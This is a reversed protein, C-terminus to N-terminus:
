SCPELFFPNALFGVYRNGQDVVLDPNGTCVCHQARSSIGYRLLVKLVYRIFDRAQRSVLFSSFDILATRMVGTLSTSSVADADAIPTPTAQVFLAMSVLTILTTTFHM